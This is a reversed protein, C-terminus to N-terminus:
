LLSQQTGKRTRAQRQSLLQRLETCSLIALLETVSNESCAENGSLDLVALSGLHAMRAKLFAVTAETSIQCRALVLRTLNSLRMSPLGSAPLLCASLDQVRLATGRLLLGAITDAFHQRLDARRVRLATLQTLATCADLVPRCYQSLPEADCYDMHDISLARLGTLQSVQHGLWPVSQPDLATGEPEVEM